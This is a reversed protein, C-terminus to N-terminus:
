GDLILNDILRTRGVHAAILAVAPGDLHELTKLHESDVVRAYEIRDVGQDYLTKEMAREISEVNKHGNAVLERAVTLSKWLALASQREDPSLYRNRSSMALGDEERLTPCSEVRVPVNLDEVMRRIVALQQFDKQGFYAITAPLIQFLKLVVTAVGRFHGPRHVGELPEAVVPPDVYTSFGDPYLDTPQPVFVLDVGRERLGDLDDELPRPYKAFDEHPGFQTPNVFISAVTIECEQLSREVLSFHGAHLAGMTPVLGIRLGDRRWHDVHAYAELSNEVVKM